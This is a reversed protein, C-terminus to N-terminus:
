SSTTTATRVQGRDVSVGITVTAAIGLSLLSTIRARLRIAAGANVPVFTSASPGTGTQVIQTITGSPCTNNSENWSTSCAEVVAAPQTTTATYTAGTLTLTGTNAVNFFKPSPLVLLLGTFQLALPGTGYPAATNTTAVAGWSGAGAQQSVSRAEAKGTAQAPTVALCLLLATAPVAAVARSSIRQLPM